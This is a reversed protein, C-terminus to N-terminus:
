SGEILMMILPLTVMSLMTSTFMLKSSFAPNKDYKQALIVMTTPAPMASMLICIGRGVYNVPIPYLLLKIVAPFLLLRVVSYKIADKDIIEKVDLDSMISGIVFMCLVTTCGAIAEMAANVAEPLFINKNYFLMLIIGAVISVICPHTLIRKVANKRDTSADYMSLGSTWMMIRQPIVFFSAYLVGTEGYMASAIPIGIFSANTVMTAYKCSVAKDEPMKRWLFRNALWYLGQILFAAALVWITAEVIEKSLEIQFSKVISCPLMVQIILNTLKNRTQLDLLGKKGLFFGTGLFIFLEMQLRLM